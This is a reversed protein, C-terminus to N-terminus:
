LKSVASNIGNTMTPLKPEAALSNKQELVAGIVNTIPALNMKRKMLPIKSKSGVKVANRVDKPNKFYPCLDET